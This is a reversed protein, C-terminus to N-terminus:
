PALQQLGSYSPSAVAHPKPRSRANSVAVPGLVGAPRLWSGDQLSGKRCTRQADAKPYLLLNSCRQWHCWGAVRAPVHRAPPEGPCAQQDSRGGAIQFCNCCYTIILESFCCGLPEHGHTTHPTADNRPIGGLPTSKRGRRLCGGCARTSIQWVVVPWFNHLLIFMFSQM